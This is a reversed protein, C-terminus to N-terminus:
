EEPLIRGRTRYESSTMLGREDAVNFYLAVAGKPITATIMSGSVTAPAAKWHRSPWATTDATVLLEAKTVKHVSHFAVRAQDGKVQPKDFQILSAADKVVSDAFAYIENPRWGAQHDHPMELQYRLTVPGRVAQASAQTSLMTFHRDNTGNLWLTPITVNQFYASGDYYQNVVETHMGMQITQEQHGDSDPLFGCGYVPIAFAFRNDVGMVTSTLTGGWSIGTIGIKDPNVTPFSRILSHALIVQSVAHYYWQQEIPKEFDNFVGVRSPGPNETPVRLASREQTERIPYHGELDMSIAAYGNDNWRQVWNNFATGGGGHICVVAPWGGAPVDGDPASYYAFVQVPKGNYHISSYLIGSMGPKAAKDTEEWSPAQFLVDLDWPERISALAFPQVICVLMVIMHKM